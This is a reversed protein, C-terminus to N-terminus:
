SNEHKKKKLTKITQLLSPSPLFLKKTKIYDYIFELKALNPYWNIIFLHLFHLKKYVNLDLLSLILFDFHRNKSCVEFCFQNIKSSFLYDRKYTNIKMLNFVALHICQTEERDELFYDSYQFERKIKSATGIKIFLRDKGKKFDEFSVFNYYDKFLKPKNTSIFLYNPHKIHKAFEIFLEDSKDGYIIKKKKNRLYEISVTDILKKGNSNYYSIQVLGKDVEKIVETKVRLKKVKEPPNIIPLNNFANFFENIILRVYEKNQIKTRNIYQIFKRKEKILQEIHNKPIVYCRKFDSYIKQKFETTLSKEIKYVQNDKLYNFFDTITYNIKTLRGYKEYFITPLYYYKISNYFNILSSDYFKGKFTHIISGKKLLITNFELKFNDINSLYLIYDYFNSFDIIPQNNYLEQIEKKFEVIKSEIAKITKTNYLLQERNPTIDLEGINFKLFLNYRKILSIDEIEKFYKFDIPYAVKGLIIKLEGNYQTTEVFSNYHKIKINNYEEGVTSKSIRDEVYINEFCILQEKIASTIKHYDNSNFKICVSVGNKKDTIEKLIIPLELKNADRYMLIKTLVRDYVNTIEVVNTNLTEAASLASFRGIGFGGHQDNDLRKTSSGFNSYIKSFREPSIGTGFDQITISNEGEEEQLIILIPDNTKAEVHSDWANSVTERIFSGVPNSYLNTSLTQFLFDLNNIDIGVTNTTFQGFTIVESNNQTIIM